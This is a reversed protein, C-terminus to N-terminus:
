CIIVICNIFLVVSVRLFGWFRMRKLCNILTSEDFYRASSIIMPVNELPSYLFIRQRQFRSREEAYNCREKGRWFRSNNLDRIRFTHTRRSRKLLRTCTKNNWRQSICWILFTLYKIPTHKLYPMRQFPRERGSVFINACFIVNRQHEENFHAYHSKYTRTHQRQNQESSEM